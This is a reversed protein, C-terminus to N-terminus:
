PCHNLTMNAANEEDERKLVDFIVSGIQQKTTELEQTRLLLLASLVRSSTQEPIKM